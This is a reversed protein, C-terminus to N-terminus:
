VDILTFCFVLVGASLLQALLGYVGFGYISESLVAIAWLVGVTEFFKFLVSNPMTDIILGRDILILYMTNIAFSVLYILLVVFATILIDKARFYSPFFYGALMFYMTGVLMDLFIM